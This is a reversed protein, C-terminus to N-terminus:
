RSGTEEKIIQLASRLGKVYDEKDKNSDIEMLIRMMIMQFYEQTM